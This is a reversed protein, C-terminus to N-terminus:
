DETIGHDIQAQLRNNTLDDRDIIDRIAEFGIWDNFQPSKVLVLSKESDIQVVEGTISYRTNHLLFRIGSGIEMNKEVETQVKEDLGRIGESKIIVKM